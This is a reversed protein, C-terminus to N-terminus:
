CLVSPLSGSSLQKFRFVYSCKLAFILTFKLMRKSYDLQANTPYIFYKITSSEDQLASLNVAECGLRAVEDVAILFGV